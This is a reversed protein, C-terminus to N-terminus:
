LNNSINKRLSYFAYRTLPLPFLSMLLDGVSQLKNEYLHVFIEKMADLFEM